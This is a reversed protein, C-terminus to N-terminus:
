SGVVGVVHLYVVASNVGDVNVVQNVLDDVFGGLGVSAKGLWTAVLSLNQALHGSEQMVLRYSRLGYHLRQFTLDAVTFIWLPCESADINGGAKPPAVVRPDLMPSAPMLDALVERTHLLDLAHAQPDYVYMGRRLGAIDHCYLVLRLPYRTGGSPYTRVMFTVDTGPMTKATTEAASYYLLTGLEDLTLPGTYRGYGSRRALLVDELPPRSRDAGTPRPLAVRELTPGLDQRGIPTSGMLDARQDEVRQSFYKSQEHMLRDVADAGDAHYPRRPGGSVLPMSALWAVYVEDEPRLGLRAHAGRVLSRYVEGASRTLRGAEALEVLAAWTRAHLRHWRDAVTNPEAMAARADDYHRLWEAEDRLYASEANFRAAVLETHAGADAVSYAHDRLWQVSGRWDAGTARVSALLLAVVARHRKLPSRTADITALISPTTEELHRLCVAVGDPGGYRDADDAHGHEGFQAAGDVATSITGRLDDITAETVDRLRLCAGAGRREFFWGDLAGAERAQRAWAQVTDVLLRELRAPTDLGAVHLSRWREGTDGNVGASSLTHPISTM